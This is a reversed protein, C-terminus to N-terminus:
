SHIAGSTGSLVDYYMKVTREAMLAASFEREVRARGAKGLTAAKGPNELLEQLASRLAADDGSEVLLGHVGHEIVEPVGGVRTAVVAREM